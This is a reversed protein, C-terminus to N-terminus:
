KFKNYLRELTKLYMKNSNWNKISEAIYIVGENIDGPSYYTPFNKPYKIKNLLLPAVHPNENRANLYYNEIIDKDKKSKIACLLKSFLFQTSEEDYEDILEMLEDLKNFYLLSNILDYRIGQNDGPNLELMLEFVEMAEEERNLVNLLEGYHRMARMFPRTEVVEYFHGKIEKLYENDNSEYFMDIATKLYNLREEDDDSEEALINYADIAYKDIDIAEKALKVRKKSDNEERAQKILIFAENDSDDYIMKEFPMRKDINFNISESLNVDIDFVKSFEDDGDNITKNRNNITKNRKNRDNDNGLQKKLKIIEDYEKKLSPNNQIINMEYDTFDEIDFSDDNFSDLFNETSNEKQYLVSDMINKVIEYEENDKPVTDMLELARDYYGKESYLIALGMISSYENDMEGDEFFEMLYKEAEDFKEMEFLIFGKNMKYQPNELDDKYLNDILSMAKKEENIELYLSVSLMIAMERLNENYYFSELFKLNEEDLNLSYMLKYKSMLANSSKGNELVKNYIEMADDYEEDNEKLEAKLILIDDYNEYDESFSDIYEYAENDYGYEYLFTTKIEIIEFNDPNIKLGYDLIEFADDFLELSELEGVVLNYIYENNPDVNIAKKYADVAANYKGLAGYSHGIVILYEFNDPDFKSLQNSLKIIKEYNKNKIAKTLKREIKEKTVKSM